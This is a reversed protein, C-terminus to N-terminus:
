TSLSFFPWRSFFVALFIFVAAGFGLHSFVWLGWSFLCFSKEVTHIKLLSYCMSTWPLFFSIQSIQPLFVRNSLSPLIYLICHVFCKEMSIPKKHSTNKHLSFSSSDTRKEPKRVLFCFQYFFPGGKFSFFRVM